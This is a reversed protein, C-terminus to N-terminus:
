RRLRIIKIIKEGLFPCLLVALVFLSYNWVYGQCLLIYSLALYLCIEMLTLIFALKYKFFTIFLSTLIVGILIVMFDIYGPIIKLFNRAYLTLFANANLTIGPLWGLPTPQIDGFASSVLGILIIKNKVLGPEFEGKYAKYFSILQFDKTHATFNILFSKTNKEVPVHWARNAYDKFFLSSKKINLSSLDILEATKLLQMEWSLFGMKQKEFHVLYTLNKRTMGDSDRLKTVFGSSAGNNLETDTFLDIFGNEDISTALVINKDLAAKLAADDEATSNGLFLFDFGIVKAESKKLNEIVKSFTARPYPWRYPMNMLTENDITVILIDKIAAPPTNLKYKVRVLADYIKWNFCCEFPLSKNFFFLGCAILIAIISLDTIKKIKDTM